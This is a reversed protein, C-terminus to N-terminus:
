KENRNKNVFDYISKLKSYHEDEIQIINGKKKKKKVKIRKTPKRNMKLLNLNGIALKYYDYKMKILFGYKNSAEILYRAVDNIKFGLVNGKGMQKKLIWDIMIVFRRNGLAFCPIIIINKGIKRKTQGIIPLLNDTAKYLGYFPDEKKKKKLNM